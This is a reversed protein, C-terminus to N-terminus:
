GQMRALMQRAVELNGRIKTPLDVISRVTVESFPALPWAAMIADAEEASAVNLIGGGGQEGALGWLQEIKGSKTNADIWQLFGEMVPVVAEPPVPHMRRADILYRM